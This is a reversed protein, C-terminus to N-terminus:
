IRKDVWKMASQVAGVHTKGVTEHVQDGDRYILCHWVGDTDPECYFAFHRYGVV